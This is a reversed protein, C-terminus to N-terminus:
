IEESFINCDILEDLLYYRIAGNDANIGNSNLKKEFFDTLNYLAIQPNNNTELLFHNSIYKLFNSIKLARVGDLGFSKKAETIPMRYVAYLDLFEEKFDKSFDKFKSNIKKDPDCEYKKDIITYNKDNSLYELLSMITEVENIETKPRPLKIEKNLFNAILCIEDTSKNNIDAILKQIDIVDNEHDFNYQGNNTFDTRYSKADKSILLVKLKYNNHEPKAFFGEISEKIKDNDNQSTVQIAMKNQTDILDIHAANPNNYNANEFSFGMTKYFDRYFNEAHINIDNLNLSNNFKIEVQLYALTKAIIDINKKRVDM